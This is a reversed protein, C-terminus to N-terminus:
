KRDGSCRHRLGLIYAMPIAEHEIVPRSILGESLSYNDGIM